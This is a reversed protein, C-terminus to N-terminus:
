ILRARATEAAHYGSRERPVGFAQFGCFRRGARLEILRKVLGQARLKRSALRYDLSGRM